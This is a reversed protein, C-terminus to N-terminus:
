FNIYVVAGFIQLLVKKVHPAYINGILRDSIILWTQEPTEKM